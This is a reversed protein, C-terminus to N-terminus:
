FVKESNMYLFFEDDPMFRIQQALSENFWRKVLSNKTLSIESVNQGKLVNLSTEAAWQGQEKAIKTLGFVAYPMMFDDCTFVPKQIHERVFNIAKEEEWGKIAGNTPLYILDFHEQADKFAMKWEKFDKAMVYEPELSMSRFIPDLVETNKIESDSQESLVLLKGAKPYYQHIWEVSEQIPLVELMGTVNDCPLGYADATWNVGCFIVPIDKNKFHPVIVYKVADDDSAIIIDPNFQSIEKLVLDVKEQISARDGARKTDMFFTEVEVSENEFIEFIGEMIDDSSGYGQHYSNIYFVKHKSETNKKCSIALICLIILLANKKM